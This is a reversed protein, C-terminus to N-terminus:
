AVEEHQALQRAGDESLRAIDTVLLEEIVAALAAIHPTEFFRRMPMEVQFAERVRAIVQTMLLSHGGLEFFNDRAGVREFRLVERWIKALAEETPTSPAVFTEELEPRTPEPAPLARRNLKGNPTLPLADLFVFAAPVMYDPLKAQLFDRLGAPSAGARDPEQVLYAVLRKEEPADERALVVCERVAPHQALVSEIEGLEVRYGRVKVQNDVREIYLLRGDSL